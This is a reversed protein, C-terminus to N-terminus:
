LKHTEIKIIKSNNGIWFLLQKITDLQSARIDDFADFLVQQESELLVSCKNRAYGITQHDRCTIEINTARTYTCFVNREFKFLMYVVDSHECTISALIEVTCGINNSGYSIDLYHIHLMESETYQLLSWNLQWQTTDRSFFLDKKM